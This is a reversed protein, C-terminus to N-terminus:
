QMLFCLSIFMSNWLRLYTFTTEVRPSTLGFSLICDNVKQTSAILLQLHPKEASDLTFIQGWGILAGRCLYHATGGQSQPIAMGADGGVGDTM